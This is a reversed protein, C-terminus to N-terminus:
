VAAAPQSERTRYVVRYELILTGIHSTGDSAVEQRTRILTVERVFSLLGAATVMAPEVEAAIQDLLDDPPAAESVAIEVALRLPRTLVADPGQADVDSTEDITYLLLSPQFNQELARTRGTYVRAGTTPLGTLALKAADRIRRRVHPDSM